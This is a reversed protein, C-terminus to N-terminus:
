CMKGPLFTYISWNWPAQGFAGIRNAFVIEAGLTLPNVTVGLITLDRTIEGLLIATELFLPVGLDDMKIRNEPKGNYVM